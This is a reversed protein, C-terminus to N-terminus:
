LHFITKIEKNRLKHFRESKWQTETERWVCICSLHIFKHIYIYICIHYFIRLHGAQLTKKQTWSKFGLLFWDSSHFDENGSPIKNKSKQEEDM